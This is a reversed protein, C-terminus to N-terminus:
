TFDEIKFTFAKLGEKALKKRLLKIKSILNKSEETTCGVFLINNRGPWIDDGLHMGSSRGKGFIGAIKTYSYNKDELIEMIEDEIAENYIIMVMKEM